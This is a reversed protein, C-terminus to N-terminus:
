LNKIDEDVKAIKCKIDTAALYTELMRRTLAETQDVPMEEGYMNITMLLNRSELGLKTRENDSTPTGVGAVADRFVPLSAINLLGRGIAEYPEGEEGIGLTLRNGAIKDADFGGISYGTLISLVNIVDVAANVRYLGLGRVIRRCLAETSPRYRNPDKGLIKYAERTAKIGPRNKIDGLEYASLIDRETEALLEEIDPESERNLITAEVVLVKLNPLKKHIETEFKIEM